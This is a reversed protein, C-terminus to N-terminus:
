RTARRRDRLRHRALAALGIVMVLLVGVLPWLALSLLLLAGLVLQNRLSSSLTRTRM